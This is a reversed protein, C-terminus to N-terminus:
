KLMESPQCNKALTANLSAGCFQQQCNNCGCSMRWFHVFSVPRLFPPRFARVHMHVSRFHLLPIAAASSPEALKGPCEGEGFHGLLPVLLNFLFLFRMFIAVISNLHGAVQALARAVDLGGVCPHPGKGMGGIHM